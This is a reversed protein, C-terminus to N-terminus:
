EARPLPIQVLQREILKVGPPPRDLLKVTCRSIYDLLDKLQAVDDICLAEGNADRIQDLIRQQFKKARSGQRKAEVAIFLGRYCILFDVTRTGFGAQVPMFYYLEDGYSALLKKIDDKVIGEPTKM